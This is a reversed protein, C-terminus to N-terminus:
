NNINRLELQSVIRQTARLVTRCVKGLPDNEGKRELCNVNPQFSVKRIFSLNRETESRASSRSIRHATANVVTVTYECFWVADGEDVAAGACLGVGAPLGDGDGLGVGVGM